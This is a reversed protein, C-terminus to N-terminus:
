QFPRLSLRHQQEREFAFQEFEAHVSRRQFHQEM